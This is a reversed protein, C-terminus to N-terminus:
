IYFPASSTVLHAAALAPKRTHSTVDSICKDSLVFLESSYCKKSNLCHPRRKCISYLELHLENLLVVHLHVPARPPNKAAFQHGSRGELFGTGAAMRDALSGWGALHGILCRGSFFGALSGEWLPPFGKVVAVNVEFVM